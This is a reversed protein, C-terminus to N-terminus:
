SNTQEAEFYNEKGEGNLTDMRDEQDPLMHREEASNPMYVEVEELSDQEGREDCSSNQGLQNHNAFLNNSTEVVDKPKQMPNKLYDTPNIVALPIGTNFPM